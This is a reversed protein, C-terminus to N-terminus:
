PAARAAPAIARVGSATRGCRVRPYCLAKARSILVYHRGGLHPRGLRKGAVLGQSPDLNSGTHDGRDGAMGRVLAVADHAHGRAAQAFADGLAQIALVQVATDVDLDTLVPQEDLQVDDGLVASTDALDGVVEHALNLVRDLM